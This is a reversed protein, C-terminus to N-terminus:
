DRRFTIRSDWDLERPVWPFLMEIMEIVNFKGQLRNLIWFERHVIFSLREIEKSRRKIGENRMFENRIIESLRQPFATVPHDAFHWLRRLVLIFVGFFRSCTFWDQRRRNEFM